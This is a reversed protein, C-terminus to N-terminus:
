LGEAEAMVQTLTWVAAAPITLTLGCILNAVTSDFTTGTTALVENALTSFGTAALNHSLHGAFQSTAAAGITRIIARIDMVATDAAATPTGMTLTAITADGTTGLTGVKFLLTAGATTSAATKSMFIKWKFGTGARLKGAPVAINSGTIYVTTAGTIVLDSVSRNGLMVGIWPKLDTGLVIKKTTGADNCPIEQADLAPSAVETLASIKTDAV